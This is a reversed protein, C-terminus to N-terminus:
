HNMGCISSARYLIYLVIEIKINRIAILKSVIESLNFNDKLFNVTEQSYNKSIWDRGLVSNNNM